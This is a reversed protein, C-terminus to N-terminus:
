AFTEELQSIRLAVDALDVRAGLRYFSRSAANLLELAAEKCGIAVYLLALERSAEAESLVSGTQVALEIASRLRSEALPYQGLERYSQGLVKYSDAKDLVCGLQDFIGLANEANQRAQDYQRRGLYVEATNLLNLGELHLDGIEQAIDFSLQYYEDAEDWRELDASVMGLNHYAIACGRRDGISAFALLSQQYHALAETMSGQVNALIGLNQEARGRLEASGRGLELAGRFKQRASEIDGGEFEFGALANLAEAALITDGLTSAIEQSRQCLKQALVPEHRQHHVIGLRRLSEALIAPQTDREAAEIAAHYWQVAEVM